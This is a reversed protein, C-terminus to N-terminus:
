PKLLDIPIRCAALRQCTAYNCGQTAICSVCDAQLNGLEDICDGVSTGVHCDEVISRCATG